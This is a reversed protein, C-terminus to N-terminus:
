ALPTWMDTIRKTQRLSNRIQKIDEELEAVRQELPKSLQKVKEKLEELQEKTQHATEQLKSVKKLEEVARDLYYDELSQEKAVAKCFQKNKLLEVTAADTDFFPKARM